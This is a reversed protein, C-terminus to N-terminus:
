DGTSYYPSKFHCFPLRQMKPQQPLTALTGFAQKDTIGTNRIKSMCIDLRLDRRKKEKLQYIRLVLNFFSICLTPRHVHQCIISM